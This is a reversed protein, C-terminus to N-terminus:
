AAAGAPELGGAWLRMDRPNVGLVMAIRKLLGRRGYPGLGDALLGIQRLDEWDDVRRCIVDWLNREQRPELMFGTDGAGWAEVGPPAALLDRAYHWFITGPAAVDRLTIGDVSLRFEVRTLPGPDELGNLEMENRKCYVLCRIEAKPNGLYVGGATHGRADLEDYRKTHRPNLAKRGLHFGGARSRALVAAISEPGDLPLDVTAHLRTVRHEITWLDALLREWLGLLRLTECSGGSIGLCLVSYTRKLRVTPLDRKGAQSVLGLTSRVLRPLRWTGPFEATAHAEVLYPRLLAEVDDARHLPFTLDVSDTFPAHVSLGHPGLIAM